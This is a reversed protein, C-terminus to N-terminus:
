WALTNNNVKSKVLLCKGKRIDCFKDIEKLIDNDENGQPVSQKIEKINIGRGASNQKKRLRPPSSAATVTLQSM